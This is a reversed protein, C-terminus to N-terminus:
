RRFASPTSRDDLAFPHKSPRHFPVSKLGFELASIALAEGLSVESKVHIEPFHFWGAGLTSTIQLVQFFSHVVHFDLDVYVLKGILGLGMSAVTCYESGRKTGIFNKSCFYMVLIKCRGTSILEWM